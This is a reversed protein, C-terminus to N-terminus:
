GRLRPEVKHSVSVIVGVMSCSGLLSLARADPVQFSVDLAMESNTVIILWYRSCTFAPGRGLTFPSADPRLCM